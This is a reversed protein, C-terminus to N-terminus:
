DSRLIGFVDMHSPLDKEDPFPEVSEADIRSPFGDSRYHVTGTATIRKRWLVRMSELLGDPVSCEIKRGWVQERITLKKQDNLISLRGEVTGRQRYSPILMAKIHEYLDPTIATRKKGVWLHVHHMSSMVHIHNAISAYQTPTAEKNLATTFIHQVKGVESQDSRSDADVGLLISGSKTRVIWDLASKDHCVEKTMAKLLSDFANVVQRFDDATTRDSALELTIASDIDKPDVM